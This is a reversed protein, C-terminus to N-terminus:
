RRITGWGLYPLHLNRTFLAPKVPAKKQGAGSVSTNGNQVQGSSDRM